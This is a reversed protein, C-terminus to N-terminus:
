ADNSPVGTMLEQYDFKNGLAQKISIKEESEGIMKGNYIIKHSPISIEGRVFQRGKETLRWYGSTRKKTDKNPIEESLGWLRTKAWDGGRFAPLDFNTVHVAEWPGTAQYSYMAILARAMSSTLKRRYVKVLQGCCPCSVGKNDDVSKRLFDKAEQITNM